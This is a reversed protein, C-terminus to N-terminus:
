ATSDCSDDFAGRGTAVIVGPRGYSGRRRAAGSGVDLAPMM